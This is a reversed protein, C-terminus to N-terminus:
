SLMLVAKAQATRAAGAEPKKSQALGPNLLRNVIPNRSAKREVFDAGLATMSYDSNDAVTIFEKARLYWMTFCLYERPFGMERELDLLSVGPHDPNTRRQNYLLCLVGLRRNTEADVGTVFDKMGFIPMPGEARSQELEADYVARREPDSLVAYARKMRLFEEIDGTEPNDPHFRAAMLRFVRHITQMEAKANIQLAEYHDPERDLAANRQQRPPPPSAEPREYRERFELGVHFSTGHRSCHVVECERKVSGDRSHVQVLAGLKIESNCEVGVGSSSIDIGTGEASFSGGDRTKWTIIYLGKRSKRPQSRAEDM